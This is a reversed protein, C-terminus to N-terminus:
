CTQIVGTGKCNNCQSESFENHYYPERIKGKGGCVPCKRDEIICFSHSVRWQLCELCIDIHRDFYPIFLRNKIVSIMGYIIEKGCDDCYIKETVEKM